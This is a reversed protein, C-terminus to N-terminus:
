KQEVNVDVQDPVDIEPAEVNVETAADDAVDAGGRMFMFWVVLGLVALVVVVLLVNTGGGGGGDGAPPPTQHVHVEDAM